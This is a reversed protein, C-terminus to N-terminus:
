LPPILQVQTLFHDLIRRVIDVDYLYESTHSFCPILLDSLTAHHLHRGARRELDAKCAADCNLMYAARTTRLLFSCSVADTHPPPLMAVIEELIVRSRNQEAITARGPVWRQAYYELAGGLLAASVSGTVAVADVLESFCYITLHSVDEYWWASQGRPDVTCAQRAVAQACRTVLGTDEAWPLLLECSQLVIISEQWAVRDLYADARSVVNGEEFAETMELYDACCRVAAVNTANLEGEGEEVGYCMKAVVMFAEAGGPVEVLNIYAKRSDCSQAALRFLLGSRSL